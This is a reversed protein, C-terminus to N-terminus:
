FNYRNKNEFKIQISEFLKEFFGNFIRGNFKAEMSSSKAEAEGKAKSLVENEHIKRELKSSVEGLKVEMEKLKRLFEQKLAFVSNPQSLQRRYHTVETELTAITRQSTQWLEEFSEKEQSLNRIQTKLRDVTLSDHKASKPEQLKRHLTRNEEAVSVLHSKLQQHERKQNEFDVQM